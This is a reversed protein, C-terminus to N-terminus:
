HGAPGDEDEAAPCFSGQIPEGSVYMLNVDDSAARSRTKMDVLVARLLLSCPSGYLDREFGPDRTVSRAEGVAHTLGGVLTQWENEPLGCPGAAAHQSATSWEIMVCPHEYKCEEVTYGVTLRDGAQEATVIVRPKVLADTTITCQHVVAGRVPARGSDEDYVTLEEVNLAYATDPRLGTLAYAASSGIYYPSPEDGRDREAVCLMFQSTSPTGVPYRPWAVSIQSHTRYLIKLGQILLFLKSPADSAKLTVKLPEEEGLGFLEQQNVDFGAAKQIEQKLDFVTPNQIGAGAEVSVSFTEGTMMSVSFTHIKAALQEHGLVYGEEANTLDRVLNWVLTTSQVSAM